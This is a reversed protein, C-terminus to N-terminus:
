GRQHLRRRFQEYRLRLAERAPQREGSCALVVNAFGCYEKAVDPHLEVRLGEPEIGLLDLDFLTHIDSRLLLGNAPHNDEDRRYPNIHAAELVALVECGSILCRSGYRNLLAERFEQQGRRERIQRQILRRPDIDQPFYEDEDNPRGPDAEEATLWSGPQLEARIDDFFSKPIKFTALQIKYPWVHKSLGKVEVGGPNVHQWQNVDVRQAYQWREPRKSHSNVVSRSWRDTFDEYFALADTYKVVGTRYRHTHEDVTRGVTDEHHPQGLHRDRSRPAIVEGVAYFRNSPLYAVLWDSPKIDRVAKWNKTTAAIQNQQGQYAHGNHSYQYQMLWAGEELGHDLVSADLDFNVCWFAPM